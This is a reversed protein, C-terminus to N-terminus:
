PVPAHTCRVYTDTADTPDAVFTRGYAFGIVDVCGVCGTGIPDACWFGDLGPQGPDAPFAAHDDSPCCLNPYKPGCSQLGSGNLVITQLQDHMPVTWGTLGDLTLNACYTAADAWTMPGGYGRQWLQNGNATDKAVGETLVFRGSTTCSTCAGNVCSSGAACVNGCAGCNNPDITRDVCKSGGCKPCALEDILGCTPTGWGTVLDFGPVAHNPPVNYPPKSYAGALQTGTVIDNFSTASAPGKGVAYISPNVDGITPGGQSAVEQNVLAMFGAWLPSAVSTGEFTGLRHASGGWTACMALGAAVMSVDPFNRQTSSGGNGTWNIGSQQWFPQTLAAVGGGSSAPSSWGSDTWVSEAGYSQGAGNMTLITGGVITLNQAAAPFGGQTPEAGADGTAMFFAQGLSAM